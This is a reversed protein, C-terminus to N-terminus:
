DYVEGIMELALTKTAADGPYNRDIYDGLISQLTPASSSAVGTRTVAPRKAFGEVIVAKAGRLILENRVAEIDAPNTFKGGVVKIYNDAINTAM